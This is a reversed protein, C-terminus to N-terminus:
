WSLKRRIRAAGYAFTHRVGGYRLHFRLRRLYHLPGRKEVPPIWVLFGAQEAATSGTLRAAPDEVAMMGESIGETISDWDATLLEGGEKFFPHDAVVATELIVADSDRALLSLNRRNYYVVAFGPHSSESIGPVALIVDNERSLAETLGWISEAGSGAPAIDESSVVLLRKRDPHYKHPEGNM